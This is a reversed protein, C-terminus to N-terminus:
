RFFFQRGPDWLKSQVNAKLANARNNFDNAVSGQGAMNAINAIARMDGYMFSNISPRYGWGWKYADRTQRSVITNETAETDPNAYYMGAGADYGTKRIDAGERREQAWGNFHNILPNLLGVTFDRDGTVLYREYAAAAMDNSYQYQRDQGLGRAWHNMDDDLFQRNRMWRADRNNHWINVAIGGYIGAYGVNNLFETFIYGTEPRTYKLQRQLVSWRYYYIKQINADPVELFPINDKFWQKGGLGELLANRDLINTSAQPLVGDPQPNPPNLSASLPQACGAILLALGFTVTLASKRM